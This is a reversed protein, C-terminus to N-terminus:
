GCFSRPRRSPMGSRPTAGSSPSAWGNRAEFGNLEVLEGIASVIVVMRIKHYKVQLYQQLMAMTVNQM